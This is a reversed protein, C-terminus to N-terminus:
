KAQPLLIVLEMKPNPIETPVYVALDRARVVSQWAEGSQNLSFYQYKLKVPIAAPPNALHTLGVGPLAQGILRELQARSAIKLLGPALKILTAPPADSEIALYFQTDQLYKEDDLATAYISAQAMKLPLSVINSPVVTDILLKLTEHLSGLCSGLDDHAYEPLDKPLIKSSFTTLAGALSLMERYMQEPHGTNSEFLHAFGPFHSNLTYLLWFNAIDAASFDALSQGKQRRFSALVSSKASMIEVIGGLIQRLYPSASYDLLPPVVNPSLRLSGTADRLVKGVRLISSGELNEGQFIIRFNKRALQVPRETTGLNEDQLLAMESWYRGGMERAGLAVNRGNSRYDPIALFVDLSDQGEPFANNIERAAPPPDSEPIEFLLGDPFIGSAREIHLRGDALQEADLTLQCFGWAVFKLSQLRFALVDQVFRDQAQLHQPSLFTGKTWVVPQLRKM